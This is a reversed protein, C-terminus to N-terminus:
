RVEARLLTAQDLSLLHTGVGSNRLLSVSQLNTWRSTRVDYSYFGGYKNPELADNLIRGGFIYIMQADSDMVM